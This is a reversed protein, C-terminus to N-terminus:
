TTHPLGTRDMPLQPKTTLLRSRAGASVPYVVKFIAKKLFAIPLDLHSLRLTSLAHLSHPKHPIRTLRDLRELPITQFNLVPPMTTTAIHHAVM